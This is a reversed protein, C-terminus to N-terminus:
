GESGFLDALRQVCPSTEPIEAPTASAGPRQATELAGPVMLAPRTIRIQM